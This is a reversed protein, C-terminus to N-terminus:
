SNGELSDSYWGFWWGLRASSHRLLLDKSLCIMPHPQYHIGNEFTNAQKDSIRFDIKM